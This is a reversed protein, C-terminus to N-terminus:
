RGGGGGGGKHLLHMLSAQLPSSFSEFKIQVQHSCGVRIEGKTNALRRFFVFYIFKYWRYGSEGNGDVCM